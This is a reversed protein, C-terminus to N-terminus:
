ITIDVIRQDVDTVKYFATADQTKLLLNGRKRGKLTILDQTFDNGDLGFELSYGEVDYFRVHRADGMALTNATVAASPVIVTGAVQNGDRSVFPPIVYNGNADKIMRGKLIDRPNLFAVNSDYKNEKGNALYTAVTAILDYINADQVADVGAGVAIAQTFDTSYVYIGKWNPLSGDGNWMQQDALLRLNNDIFMKVEPVIEAINTVSEHTMPISDLIKGMELSRQIHTLVSEPATGAEATMAANRTVTNQDVYYVTGHHNAPLTFKTFFQEFVLGRFAEQNFGPLYVGATDGSINASTINAKIDITFSSKGEAKAKILDAHKAEIQEGITKPKADEEAKQAKKVEVIVEEIKTDILKNVEEIDKSKAFGELQTKLEDTTILGARLEDAKASFMEAMETGIKGKLEEFQKLEM